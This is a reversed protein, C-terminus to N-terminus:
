RSDLDRSVMLTVSPDLVPIFRWLMGFVQSLDGYGSVAEVTCIDFSSFGQNNIQIERIIIVHRHLQQQM